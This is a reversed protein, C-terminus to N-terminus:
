DQIREEVDQLDPMSCTLYFSVIITIYLIVLSIIIGTLMAKEERLLYIPM